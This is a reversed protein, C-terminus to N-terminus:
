PFIWVGIAIFAMSALFAGLAVGAMMGFYALGERLPMDRISVSDIMIKVFWAVGLFAIGVVVFIVGIISLLM